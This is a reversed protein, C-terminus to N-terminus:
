FRCATQQATVGLTDLDNTPNIFGEIPAVAVVSNDTALLVPQRLQHDWPRVTMPSAKAGDLNMGDGLIFTQLDAYTISQTRLVATTVARVATWAAWDFPGMHRAYFYDFRSNLQPASQRQWAWHWATAVLGASGVVPRPDNTQYAVTSAFHGDRDAVYVVDHAAGATLLAVNSIERGRPDNGAVFPRVDVIRAGILNASQRLAEVIGADEETPGQLVLINRWRRDVLFQVMADSYMRYSPIVHVINARCDAGRLSDERASVNLLTVPLDGIANALELLAPAPLDAVVFNIGEAVWEQIAAVLAAATPENAGEIAFNVNIQQGLQLSDIIGLEAGNLAPGWPRVPIQYYAAAGSFRPDDTLSVFGIALNRLPTEQATAAPVLLLAGAVAATRWGARFRGIGGPRIPGTMLLPLAEEGTAGSPYHYRSCLVMM